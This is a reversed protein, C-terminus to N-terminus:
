KYMIARAKVAEGAAANYIKIRIAPYCVGSLSLKYDTSESYLTTITSTETVWQPSATTGLNMQWVAVDTTDALSDAYIYVDCNDFIVGGSHM